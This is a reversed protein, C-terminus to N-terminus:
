NIANKNQLSATTLQEMEITVTDEGTVTAYITKNSQVNKIRIFEGLGGDELAEGVVSLTLTKNTLFIKVRDGKEIAMHKQIDNNKILDGRRIIRRVEMGILDKDSLVTNNRLQKERVTEWKIDEQKIRDGSQLTSVLVPVDVVNFIRGSLRVQQAFNDGAKIDLVATFREMGYGTNISSVNIEPVSDKPVHVFFQRQNFAIESRDSMGQDVLAEKIKEKIDSKSVIESDRTVTVKDYISTTQWPISYKAALSNLWKAVLVMKKGPAPAYAVPEDQKDIDIGNFVDGLLVYQKEVIIKNNLSVEPRQEEGIMQPKQYKTSEVYAEAKIGYLCILISVFFFVFKKTNFFM